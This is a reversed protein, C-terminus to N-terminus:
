FNSFTTKLFDELKYIYGYKASIDELERSADEVEEGKSNRPSGSMMDMLKSNLISIFKKFSTQFDNPTERIDIRDVRDYWRRVMDFLKQREINEVSANTIERMDPGSRMDSRFDRTIREFQEFTFQIKERSKEDQAKKYGQPDFTKQVSESNCGLTIAFLVLILITTLRTNTNM